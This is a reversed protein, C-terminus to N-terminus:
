VTDGPALLADLQAEMLAIRRKVAAIDVEAASNSNQELLLEHAINLAAMVAVREANSHTKEAIERMKGDAYGAARLLAERNEPSCAVRYEKDLLIIDIFGANVPM